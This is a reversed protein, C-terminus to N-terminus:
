WGWGEGVYSSLEVAKWFLFDEDLDDQSAMEM